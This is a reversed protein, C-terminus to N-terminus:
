FVAVKRRAESKIREVDLNKYEGNEYLIRGRCMTMVVDSGRASYCLASFVDFCPTLHPKDFDLMIIDADMGVRLMGCEHERSLAKAGNVTAMKLVQYAPLEVPERLFGKTLIAATKVEEFMDLSNNSSAGDTGLAINIGRDNLQKIRAIGSGLKLNSIPNHVASVGCKKMIDMDNDSVYVCHAAYCPVDFLGAEHFLQTPTKGYKEICNNHELETESLHIHMGTKNKLALEAAKIWLKRHSTYEAHISIDILIRGNDAGHWNDLLNKNEKVAPMNEFDFSVEDFDTMGRSINCKLGSSSVAEAVGECGMYMDACATVGSATLEACALEAGTKIMAADMKDEAPFIKEHLWKFLQMDDAYGRLLTMALHTHANVFGPMIVKNKGDIVRNIKVNEPPVTGIYSIVSGDVGLFGNKILPNKDDM